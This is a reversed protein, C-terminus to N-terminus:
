NTFSNECHVFNTPQVLPSIVYNCFLTVYNVREISCHVGAQLFNCEIKLYFEYATIFEHDIKPIDIDSVKYKWQLFGVTHKLSTIYRELIAAAFDKGILAKVDDNHKQFIGIFMHSRKKIGLLKNRM